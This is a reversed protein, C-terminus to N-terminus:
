SVDLIFIEFMENCGLNDFFVFGVEVDAQIYLTRKGNLTKKNLEDEGVMRM